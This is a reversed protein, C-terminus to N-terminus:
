RTSACSMAAGQHSGYCVVKNTEDYIQYFDLSGPKISLREVKAGSVFTGVTQAIQAPARTDKVEKKSDSETAMSISSSIFLLCIFHKIHM